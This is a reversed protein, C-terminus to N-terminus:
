KTKSKRNIRKKIKCHKQCHDPNIHMKKCMNDMLCSCQDHSLHEKCILIKKLTNEQIKQQLANIDKICQFAKEKDVEPDQLVKVLEEQCEVVKTKLDINELDIAASASRINKAQEHSLHLDIMLSDQAATKQPSLILYGLFALNFSISLIFLIRLVLKGM